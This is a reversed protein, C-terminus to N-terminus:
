YNSKESVLRLLLQQLQERGKPNNWIKHDSNDAIVWEITNESLKSIERQWKGWNLSNKIMFDSSIVSVPLNHIDINKIENYSLISATVQEQLRARIYRSQYKMDRGFIRSKSSYRKPHFFWHFNQVLGLPSIVGKFWLKIGTWTDMFEIINKFVKKDENKRNPGSFPRIKLLDEHWSDVFLISHIKGPKKSAFMRAYLGGIDYGVLSFPGEIGEKNLAEILYETIINISVPSPSSESWGYGPRDWVCYRHIKKLHFLEEIWEQTEEASTRQGGEVLLIPQKEDESSDYVNGFCALHVKFQDENVGIMKGWPKEHTDFTELWLTLSVNWIIWLLFLKVLTKSFMIFLEYVSRRKEIRGTFRIEQYHRGKEVGLDVLSNVFINLGTWLLMFAGLLALRERITQVSFVVVFTILTLVSSVYGLIREYYLSIDFKWITLLNTLISILALDMELFSKGPNNLGPISIFDSFLFGLFLVLNIISLSVVGTKLLRVKYLNLPSVRPDDPDLFQSGSNQLLPTDELDSAPSHPPNSLQQPEVSKVSKNSSISKPGKSSSEVPEEAVSDYAM